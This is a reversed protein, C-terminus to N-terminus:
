RAYKEVSRSSALSRSSIQHRTLLAKSLVTERIFLRRHSTEVFVKYEQSRMYPKVSEFFQEVASWAIDEVSFSIAAMPWPVDDFSLPENPSYKSNDFQECLYRYRELARQVTWPGRAWRSKNQSRKRERERRIAQEREIREREARERVERELREKERREAEEQRRSSEKVAQRAREDAEEQRIRKKAAEEWLPRDKELEALKRRSEEIRQRALDEPDLEEAKESDSDVDQATSQSRSRSNMYAEYSEYLEQEFAEQRARRLQEQKL